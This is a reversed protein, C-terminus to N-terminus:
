ANASRIRHLHQAYVATALLPLAFMLSFMLPSLSIAMGKLAAALMQDVPAERAAMSTDLLGFMTGLAGVGMGIAALWNGLRATSAFLVEGRGPEGWKAIALARLVHFTAAIGCLTVIHMFLGGNFYFQLFSGM